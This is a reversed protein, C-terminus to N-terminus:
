PLSSVGVMASSVATPMLTTSLSVSGSSSVRETVDTVVGPLPVATTVEPLVVM